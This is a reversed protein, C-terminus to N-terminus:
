NIEIFPLFYTFLDSKSRIRTLFTPSVDFSTLLVLTKKVISCKNCIVVIVPSM